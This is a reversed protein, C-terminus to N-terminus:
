VGVQKSDRRWFAGGLVAQSRIVPLWARLAAAPLYIVSSITTERPDVTAHRCLSSLPDNHSAMLEQAWGLTIGGRAQGLMSSVWAYRQWSNGRLEAPGRERWKDRLGPSVYHNTSVVFGEGPRIIEVGSYTTEIVALEGQADALILNGNGCHQVSCAYELAAEVRAYRELIHMMVEFRPLGPGVDRSFVHMDAVALGAQNMGSSFVGPIGASTLYFYPYGEEPVAHVLCQLERHAPLYDRNKALLTAGNQTVPPTAAWTTCGQSAVLYSGAPDYGDPDYGIWDLLIGAATYRFFREWALGLADAIGRAMELTPRAAQSWTRYLAESHPQLDIGCQDLLALQSEIAARIQPRLDQVQRGHQVGM